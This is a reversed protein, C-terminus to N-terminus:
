KGTSGHGGSGRETSSLEEVEVLPLDAIMSVVMQAIRDGHKIEFTANPNFLYMTILIEGRYDSDITGFTVGVGKASLGSRPRIQIDYGRPAEIAIGTPVLKPQTGVLMIAGKGEVCAFLDFGTSGLTARKPLRANPHLRKIKLSPKERAVPEEIRPHGLRPPNQRLAPM